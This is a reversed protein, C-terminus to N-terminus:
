CIDLVEKALDAEEIPVEIPYEAETGPMALPATLALDTPHLGNHRLRGIVVDAEHSSHVVTLTMYNSKRMTLGLGAPPNKLRDSPRKFKFAAAL